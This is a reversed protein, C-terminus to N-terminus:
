ASLKRRVVGAMGLLGSGILILTRPEAVPTIEGDSLITIGGRNDTVFNVDAVSGALYGANSFLPDSTMISLTGEFFAHLSNIPQRFDLSLSGSLTDGHPSTVTFMGGDPQKFVDMEDNHSIISLANMMM